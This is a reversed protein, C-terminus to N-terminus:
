RIPFIELYRDAFEVALERVAFRLQEPLDQPDVLGDMTGGTWLVTWSQLRGVQDRVGLEMRASYAAVGGRVRAAAGSTGEVVRVDLRLICCDRPRPERLRSLIDVRELEQRIVGELPTALSGRAGSGSVDVRIALSRIEELAESQTPLQATAREPALVAVAGVLVATLLMVRPSRDRSRRDPRTILVGPFQPGPRGDVVAPSPAGSAPVVLGSPPRLRFRLANSPTM